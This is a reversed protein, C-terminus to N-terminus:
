KDNFEFVQTLKNFNPTNFRRSFIPTGFSIPPLTVDIPRYGGPAIDFDCPPYENTVIVTRGIKKAHGLIRKCEEFPLHQLVDKIHVIDYPGVVAAITKVHFDYVGNPIGRKKARNVAEESADIGTYFGIPHLRGAFMQFDGCGVDLFTQPQNIAIFDNVWEVYECTNDPHSGPGSGGGWLDRRYIDDFTDRLTNM